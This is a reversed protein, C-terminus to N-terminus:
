HLFREFFAIVRVLYEGGVFEEADRHGAQPIVWASANEGAANVMHKLEAASTHPDKGGHIFLVPLPPLHKAQHYPERAFLFKGTWLSMGLVIISSIPTSLFRPVHKKVIDGAIATTLRAPGGDSILAQIHTPDAAATLLAVRGGMSFGLLGITTSGQAEAFHIAARCDQVELAGISSIRDQSRGHARFDFYLLNFGAKNLEPAYKLDPDCSGAYGHLCIITRTSKTAPIWWGVLTVGDTSAFSVDRYELGLQGPDLFVQQKQRRVVPYALLCATLLLLVILTALWCFVSM